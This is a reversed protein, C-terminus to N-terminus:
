RYTPRPLNTAGDRFLLLQSGGVDKTGLKAGLAYQGLLRGRIGEPPTGLYNPGGITDAAQSRNDLDDLWTCAELTAAILETMVAEDRATAPNVVLAKEPHHLWIDQTTLHTFGIVNNVAVANWPEGVGYVCM